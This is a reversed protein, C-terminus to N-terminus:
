SEPYGIEALDKQLSKLTIESNLAKVVDGDLPQHGYVAKIADLPLDVEYYESAFAKYTEPNGDLIELLYESGDPDECEMYEFQGKAWEGSTNLKWICFSINEMSFAPEKSAELFEEPMGELLGQWPLQHDTGWSSMASEHDFGKVFCGHPNFLIFFEDGCGNRMSAMQEDVDWTSNFSYVREDWVPSMIADLMALSKMLRKLKQVDPLLHLNQTSILSM